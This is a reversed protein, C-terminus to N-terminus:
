RSQRILRLKDIAVIDTTGPLTAIQEDLHFVSSLKIIKPNLYINARLSSITMTAKGFKPVICETRGFDGQARVLVANVQARRALSFSLTLTSPLNQSLAWNYLVIEAEPTSLYPGRVDRVGWGYGLFLWERSPARYDVYLEFMPTTGRTGNTRGRFAPWFSCAVAKMASLILDRGDLQHLHPHLKFHGNTQGRHTSTKGPRRRDAATYASESSTAVRQAWALAIWHSLTRGVHLRNASM